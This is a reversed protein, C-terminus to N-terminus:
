PLRRAKAVINAGVKSGGLRAEVRQADAGAAPDVKLRQRHAIWQHRDLGAPDLDVVVLEEDFQGLPDLGGVVRRDADLESGVDEDEGRSKFALGDVGCGLAQGM